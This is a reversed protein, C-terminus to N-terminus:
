YKLYMIELSLKKLKKEIYELKILINYFEETIYECEDLEKKIEVFRRYKFRISCLLDDLTTYFTSSMENEKAILEDEASYGDDSEPTM